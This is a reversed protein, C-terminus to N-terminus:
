DRQENESGKKYRTVRENWDQRRKSVNESELRDMRDIVESYEEPMGKPMDLKPIIFMDGVGVRGGPLGKGAVRIQSNPMTCPPIKVVVSHGYLTPVEAEFGRYLQAYTCPMEVVVHHDHRQFIEHKKTAVHVMLDGNAGRGGRCPEGHGPLRVVGDMFGAHIQIERELSETGDLASGSCRACKESAIAGTGGCDACSMQIAFGMEVRVQKVGAGDCSACRSSSKAGTGGCASCSKGRTYPVKKSCGSAIEELTIELRHQINRGKLTSRGFIDGMTPSFGFGGSASQFGAKGFTDYRGRKNPDSLIDYAEQVERFKKDAEPDGINRDPHHMKVLKRYSSQVDDQSCGKSLGLVEYADRM